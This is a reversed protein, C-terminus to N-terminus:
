QVEWHGAKTSGVRKLKGDRKLRELHKKITADAKNLEQMLDQRTYMPNAKLLEIIKDRTKEQTSEEKVFSVQVFSSADDVNLVIEPYTKLEDNIKSYGTGWQEIIDLRKFLNGLNPNRLESYGCGLKDKDVMLFGPSTIEIEDDFVAVKIDSGTISYDRHVVANIIM